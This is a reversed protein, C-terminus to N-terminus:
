LFSQIPIIQVAGPRHLPYTDRNSSRLASPEPMLDALSLLSNDTYYVKNAQEIAVPSISKDYESKSPRLYVVRPRRRHSCSFLLFSPDRPELSVSRPSNVPLYLRIAIDMLRTVVRSTNTGLLFNFLNEENSPRTRSVQRELLVRV